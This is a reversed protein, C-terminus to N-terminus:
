RIETYAERNPKQAGQLQGNKFLGKPGYKM